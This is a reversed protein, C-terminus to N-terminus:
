TPKMRSPLIFAYKNDMKSPLLLFMTAVVFPILDLPCRFFYFSNVKIRTLDPFKSYVHLHMLCITIVAATLLLRPKKTEEAEAEFAERLEKLLLVFNKKDDSGKPYEWDMDLGDFNRERLFPIASFVFIQRSYRTASM